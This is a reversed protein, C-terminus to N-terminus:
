VRVKGTLLMQMLAQKLREYNEKAIRNMRLDDDLAEFVELIERQERIPPVLLKLSSYETANINPQAGERLM